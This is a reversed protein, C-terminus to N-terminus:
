KMFKERLVNIYVNFINYVHTNYGHERAQTSVYIAVTPMAVSTDYIDKGEERLAYLAETVARIIYEDPMVPLMNGTIQKKERKVAIPTRKFKFAIFRDGYYKVVVGERKRTACFKMWRKLKHELDAVSEVYYYEYVNVMPIFGYKMNWFMDHVDTPLLFCDLALDYVDIVVFSNYKKPQEMRTPSKGPYLHEVYVILDPHDKVFKELYKWKKSSRLANDIEPGAHHQSRSGVTVKGDDDMYIVCNQGDRKETIWVDKNVLENGHEPMQEMRGFKPYKIYKGM